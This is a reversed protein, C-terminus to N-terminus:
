GMPQPFPRERPALGQLPTQNWHAADLMDGHAHLAMAQIVQFPLPTSASVPLQVLRLLAVANSLVHPEALPILGPPYFGLSPVPM